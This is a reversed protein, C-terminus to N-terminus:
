LCGKFFSKKPPPPAKFEIAEITKGDGELKGIITVENRNAAKELLESVHVGSPKIYYIKGEDHVYLVMKMKEPEGPVWNRYCGESGCHYSELRCDAFLDNKACWETTLFGKKEFEGKEGTSALLMSAAVLALLAIKKM